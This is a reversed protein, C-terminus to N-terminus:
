KRAGTKYLHDICYVVGKVAPLDCGAWICSTDEKTGGRSELLFQKQLSTTEVSEWDDVSDLKVAFQIQLKDWLNVRWLQKCLPCRRLKAWIGQSIETLNNEFDPQVDSVDILTNLKSCNCNMNM